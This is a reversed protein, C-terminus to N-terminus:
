RCGQTYAAIFANIDDNDTSGSGDFDAEGASFDAFFDSLDSTTVGGDGNWDAPCRPSVAYVCGNATVILQGTFEGHWAMEVSVLNQFGSALEGVRHGQSNLQIIRGTATDAALVVGHGFPGYKSVEIATPRFGPATLNLNAFLKAPQGAPHGPNVMLIKGAASDAFFMTQGLEGQGSIAISRGSGVGTAILSKAGSPSVAYVAGYQSDTLYLRGDFADTHDFKLTGVSRAPALGAFVSANGTPDINSTRVASDQVYLSGGYDGVYDFTPWAAPGSAVPSLDSFSTVKGAANIKVVRNDSQRVVYIQTDFGDRGSGVSSQCPGLGGALMRLSFGDAVRLSSTKTTAEKALRGQENHPKRDVSGAPPRWASSSSAQGHATGAAFCLAAVAGIIRAIPHPEHNRM